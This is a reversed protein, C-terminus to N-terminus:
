KWMEEKLSFIVSRQGWPKSYFRAHLLNTNFSHQKLYFKGFVVDSYGSCESLGLVDNSETDKQVALLM